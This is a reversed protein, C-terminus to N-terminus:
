FQIIQTYVTQVPSGIRNGAWWLKLCTKKNKKELWFMSIHKKRIEVNFFMSYYETYAGLHRLPPPPPPPPPPPHPIAELSFGCHTKMFFCFYKHVRLELYPPYWDCCDYANRVKHMHTIHTLFFFNQLISRSIDVLMFYKTKTKKKKKVYPSSM